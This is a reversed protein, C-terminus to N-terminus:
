PRPSFISCNKAKIRNLCGETRLDACMCGESGCSDAKETVTIFKLFAVVWITGNHHWLSFM